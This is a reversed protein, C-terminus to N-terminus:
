NYGLCWGCPRVESAAPLFSALFPLFTRGSGVLSSNRGQINRFLQKLMKPMMMSSLEM